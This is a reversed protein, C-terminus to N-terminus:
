ISKKKFIIIGTILVMAAISIYIITDESQKQAVRQNEAQAMFNMIQATNQAAIKQQEVARDKKASSASVISTFINSIGSIIGGGQTAFIGPTKNNDDGEANNYDNLEKHKILFYSFNNGFDRNTDLLYQVKDLLEKYTINKDVPEYKRVLVILDGTHNVIAKAIARNIINKNIIM